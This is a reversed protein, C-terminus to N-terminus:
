GHYGHRFLERVMLMDHTSVLMTMPLEDLLTILALPPARTWGPPRSTWVLVEPKM